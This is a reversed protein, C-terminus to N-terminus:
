GCCQRRTQKGRKRDVLAVGDGGVGAFVHASVYIGDCYICRSIYAVYKYQGTAVGEAEIM